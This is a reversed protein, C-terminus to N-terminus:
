TLSSQNEFIIQFSLSLDHSFFFSLGLILIAIIKFLLTVPHKRCQIGSRDLINYMNPIFKNSGCSYIELLCGGHECEKNCVYVSVQFSMM